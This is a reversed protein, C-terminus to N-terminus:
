FLSAHWYYVYIPFNRSAIDRYKRTTDISAVKDLSQLIGTIGRAAFTRTHRRRINRTRAIFDFAVVFDEFQTVYTNRPKLPDDAVVDDDYFLM